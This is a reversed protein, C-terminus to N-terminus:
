HSKELGKRARKVCVYWKRVNSKQSTSGDHRNSRKSGKWVDWWCFSRIHRPSGGRHSMSSLLRYLLSPTNPNSSDKSKTQCNNNALCLQLLISDSLKAHSPLFGVNSGLAVWHTHPESLCTPWVSHRASITPCSALRPPLCSQPPDDVRYFRFWLRPNETCKRKQKCSMKSIRQDWVDSLGPLGSPDPAKRGPQWM